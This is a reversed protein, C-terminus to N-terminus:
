LKLYANGIDERFWAGSFRISRLRNYANHNAEELSNGVGVATFCRGGTTICQGKTNHQVSGFFLQSNQSPYPYFPEVIQNTEANNPYGKSAVVVAVSIKKSIELQFDAIADGEIVETIDAIDSLLLPAIAEMSTPSLRTYYDLLVPGCQTLMISFAFIGRYHLGEARIGAISPEIIEASIRGLLEQDEIPVPTVAGMGGTMYGMGSTSIRGYDGCIPLLKYGNMDIIANVIIPAGELKSEVSVPGQKLLEDGKIILDQAHSAELVRRVPATSSPKIICPTEFSHEHAYSILEERQRIARVHATPIQYKKTFSAFFVKDHELPTSSLPAGFTKIGEAQLADAVGYQLPEKAGIFVHTIHYQKCCAIVSPADTITVNPLNVAIKRTGGNGPAVFLGTARRSKAFLSAIAHEKADSGLILVRM